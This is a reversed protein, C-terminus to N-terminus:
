RGRKHGNSRRGNLVPCIGSVSWGGAEVTDGSRRTSFGLNGDSRSCDLIAVVTALSGSTQTIRFGGILQSLQAQPSVASPQTGHTEVM